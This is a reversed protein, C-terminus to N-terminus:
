IKLKAKKLASHLLVYVGLGGAGQVINPPVSTLSVAVSGELIAGAVFYGFVMFVLALAAPIINPLKPLAKILGGFLLGELGKIIFTAIAWHPYGSLLDALASGLGGSIAGAGAGLLATATLLMGDGM